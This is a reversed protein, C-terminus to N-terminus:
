TVVGDTSHEYINRLLGRLVRDPQNAISGRIADPLAQVHATAASVGPDATATQADALGPLTTALTLLALVPHRRSIM